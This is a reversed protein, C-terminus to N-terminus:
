LRVQVTVLYFDIGGNPEKIGANSLHQFAVGIDFREFSLGAGLHSGFQLASPLQHTENNITQSLLHAGIGAEVYGLSGQRRWIPTVSADYRRTRGGLDPLRWVGIGLQLHQPWWWPQAEGNVRLGIESKTAGAVPSALLLVLAVWRKM